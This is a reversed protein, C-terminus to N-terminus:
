ITRLKELQKVEAVSLGTDEAIEEITQKGRNLLKLATERKGQSIGQSIGQSLITRARTEILAGRMMDGVGKQVNKYKQAIEKIM